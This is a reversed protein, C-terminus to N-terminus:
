AQSFDCCLLTILLIIVCHTTSPALLVLLVCTRRHGGSAYGFAEHFTDGNYMTDCFVFSNATMNFYETKVWKNGNWEDDAPMQSVMFDPGQASSRYLANLLRSLKSESPPM